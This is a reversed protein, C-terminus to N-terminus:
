RYLTVNLNFARSLLQDFEFQQVQIRILKSLMSMILNKQGDFSSSVKERTSCISEVTHTLEDTEVNYRVLLNFHYRQKQETSIETSSYFPVHFTKRYTYLRIKYLDM